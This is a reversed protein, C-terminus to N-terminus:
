NVIYHRYRVWGLFDDIFVAGNKATVQYPIGREILRELMQRHPHGYSNNVGASIVTLYPNYRDLFDESTSYMSGHHAAKLILPVSGTAEPRIMQDTEKGIDGPYLLSLGDGLWLRVVLSDENMSGTSAMPSLIKMRIPRFGASLQFEDGSRCFIVNGGSANVMRILRNREEVDQSDADALLLTDVVLGDEVMRLMGDVHDQDPHSLIMVDAKHIGEFLLYPQIVNRYSPGADVIVVRGDWEIISCDGQGVDLFMVRRRPFSFVTWLVLIGIMARMKLRKPETRGVHYLYLFLMVFVLLVFLASPRGKLISGSFGAMMNSVGYIMRVIWESLRCFGEGLVPHIFGCGTGLIGLILLYRTVPVVLLNLFFSGFSAQYFFWLCVPLTCLSVGLGGAVKERLFRPILYIRLSFSRGIWLGIVAMYTLWFGAGLIATPRMLTQLFAALAMSSPRDPERDCILALFQYTVMVGARFTSPSFGTMWIYSWLFGLLIVFSSVPGAKKELIKRLATVLITLHLGSIATIHSIGAASFLDKDEASLGGKDGLILAKMLAASTDDFLFDIQRSIMRRLRGLRASLDFWTHAKEIRCSSAKIEFWYGQSRAYSLADWQGPNRAQEPWSVTGSIRVLDGESLDYLERGLKVRCTKGTSSGTTDMLICHALVYDENEELRRIKVLIDPSEALISRIRETTRDFRFISEGIQPFVCLALVLCSLYVVCLIVM